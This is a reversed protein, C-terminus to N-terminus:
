IYARKIKKTYLVFEACILVIMFLPFFLLEIVTESIPRGPINFYRRIGFLFTESIFYELFLAAKHSVYDMLSTAFIPLFYILIPLTLIVYRNNIVLDLLQTFTMVLVVYFIVVCLQAIIIRLNDFIVPEARGDFSTVYFINDKTPFCIISVIFTPILISLMFVIIYVAQALVISGTFNSASARVKILSGYGSNRYKNLVTGSVVGFGTVLILMFFILYDGSFAFDSVYTLWNYGNAAELFGNRDALDFKTDMGQSLWMNQESYTYLFGAIVPILAFLYILINIKNKLYRKLESKFM